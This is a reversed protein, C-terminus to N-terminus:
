VGRMVPRSWDVSAMDRPDYNITGLTRLTATALRNLVPLNNSKDSLILFIDDVESKDMEVFSYPVSPAPSIILGGFRYGFDHPGSGYAWPGSPSFFLTLPRPVSALDYVFNKPIFIWINYKPVFTFYDRTVIYQTKKTICFVRKIWPDLPNISPLIRTEPLLAERRTPWRPEFEPLPM